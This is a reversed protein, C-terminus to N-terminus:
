SLHFTSKIYRFGQKYYVPEKFLVRYWCKSSKTPYVDAFEINTVANEFFSETFALRKLWQVDMCVPNGYINLYAVYVDKYATIRTYVPIDAPVYKKYEFNYWLLNCNDDIFVNGTGPILKIM